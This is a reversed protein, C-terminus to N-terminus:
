PLLTLGFELALVILFMLMGPASLLTGFRQKTSLVSHNFDSVKLSSFSLALILAGALVCSFVIIIYIINTPTPSLFDFLLGFGFVILNNMSHAIISPILSNSRIAIIGFLFSSLVIPIAQELNGHWLGFLLSSVIIAFLNGFHQLSRLILGRFLTEEVIPAVIVAYLLYFTVAFPQQYSVSFDPAAPAHGLISTLIALLISTISSTILNADLFLVTGKIAYAAGQFPTQYLDRLRFHLLKSLLFIATVGTVAGVFLNIFWIGTDSVLFSLLSRIFSNSHNEAFQVTCRITFRFTFSILTQLMFYIILTLGISTSIKKLTNKQSAFIQPQNPPYQKM